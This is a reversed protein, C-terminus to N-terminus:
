HSQLALPKELSTLALRCRRSFDKEASHTRCVATGKMARRRTDYVTKAAASTALLPPPPPCFTQIVSCAASECQRSSWFRCVERELDVFEM